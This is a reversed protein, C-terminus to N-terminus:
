WSFAKMHNKRGGALQMPKGLPETTFLYFSFFPFVDLCSSWLCFRVFDCLHDLGYDWQSAIMGKWTFIAFKDKYSFIEDTHPSLALFCINNEM